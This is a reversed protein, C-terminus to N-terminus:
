PDGTTKTDVPQNTDKHASFQKTYDDAVFFCYSVIMVSELSFTMKLLINLLEHTSPQKTLEATIFLPSTCLTYSRVGM